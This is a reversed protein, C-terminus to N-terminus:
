RFHQRNGSRARRAALINIRGPILSVQARKSIIPPDHESSHNQSQSLHCRFTSLHASNIIFSPIKFSIASNKRSHESSYKQQCREHDCFYELSCSRSKTPSYLKPNTFSSISVRSQRRAKERARRKREYEMALERSSQKTKMNLAFM